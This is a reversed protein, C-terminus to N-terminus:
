GHGAAGSMVLSVLFLMASLYDSPNTQGLASDKCEGFQWSPAFSQRQSYLLAPRWGEKGGPLQRNVRRAREADQVDWPLESLRPEQM